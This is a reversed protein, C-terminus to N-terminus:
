HLCVVKQLTPITVNVEGLKEASNIGALEVKICDSTDICGNQRIEVAYSGSSEATYTKNISMGAIVANAQDCNLWQNIANNASATLVPDNRSVSNTVTNVGLDLIVISDKNSSSTLTDFYRGNQQLLVNDFWFSNCVATDIKSFLPARVKWLERGHTVDDANFYLADNVAILNYPTSAVAGAVIDKVMFASNDLVMWLENGASGDDAVFYLVGGVEELNHPNSSNIGPNFDKVLMVTDDKAVWLESGVTASNANFYLSSGMVIRESIAAVNLLSPVRVKYVTDSVIKWLKRDNVGEDAVFYITNGVVTLDYPNANSLGTNIDKMLYVSDNQLKWLENGVVGDNATFYLIGDVTTFNTPNSAFVSPNLDKVMFATDGIAKWLERGYTSSEASFYLASGVATLYQPIAFRKYPIGKIKVITDGDMM